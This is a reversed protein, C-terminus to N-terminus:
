GDQLAKLPNYDAPLGHRRNYEERSIADKAGQEIRQRALERERRDYAAVREKQFQECMAGLRIADVSGYFDGYRGSKVRTLFLMIESVKLYYWATAFTRAADEIQATDMKRAGAYENLAYLQASLWMVPCNRGYDKALRALTPHQGFYCDHEDQVIDHLATPNYAQLLQERTMRTQLANCSSPSVRPVSQGAKRIINGIKEM